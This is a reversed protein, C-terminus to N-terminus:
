MDYVALSALSFKRGNIGSFFNGAVSWQHRTCLINLLFVHSSLQMIAFNLFQVFETLVWCFNESVLRIEAPSIMLQGGNVQFGGDMEQVLSNKELASQNKGQVAIFFVDKCSCFAQAIFVLQEQRLSYARQKSDRSSSFWTRGFTHRHIYCQMNVLIFYLSCCFTGLSVDSIWWWGVKHALCNGGLVDLVYALIYSQM